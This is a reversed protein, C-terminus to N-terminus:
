SEGGELEEAQDYLSQAEAEMAAAREEDQEEQSRDLLGTAQSRLWQARVEAPVEEGPAEGDAPEGDVVDAEAPQLEDLTAHAKAVWDAVFADPQDVITMEVTARDALGAHGLQEARTIVEEVGVPLPVGRPQGDGEGATLATREEVIEGEYYVPIGGLADPVFWKVGNSMARALLMNRPYKVFNSPEGHRGRPKDLGAIAADQQTFTSMGLSEREGTQPDRREFFEITASDNTAERIRYDFGNRKVFTGLMAYHAQVHGEVIHLGTMAQAPTLGMDRGVIMKAFAQEAQVIDKFMGSAALAQAIKWMREFETGGILPTAPTALQHHEERRAVASGAEAAVPDVSM